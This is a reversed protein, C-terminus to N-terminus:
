FAKPKFTKSNIISASSGTARIVFFGKKVARESSGENAKLYAVCGYVNKKKYTPFVDKFMKLKTEFHNIDQLRLTTKVEVVVIEKGDIAIIDFEYKKGKYNKEREKGIDDVNIGREQLLKLLDGKVLSEMLKGWHDGFLTDLENIREKTAKRYKEGEAIMQKIQLDTQKRDKEAEAVLKNIQHDTEKQFKQLERREKQLVLQEKQFEKQFENQSEVLKKISKEIEESLKSKTEVTMM